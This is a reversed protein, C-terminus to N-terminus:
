LSVESCSVNANGADKTISFMEYVQHGFTYIIQLFIEGTWKGMNLNLKNMPLKMSYKMSM